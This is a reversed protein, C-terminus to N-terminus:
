WDNQVGAVLWQAQRHVLLAANDANRCFVEQGGALSEPTFRGALCRDGAGVTWGVRPNGAIQLRFRCRGGEVRINTISLGSPRGGYLNSGPSTSRTFSNRTGQPFLVGSLRDHGTWLAAGNDSFDAFEPDFYPAARLLWLGPVGLRENIHVILLGQQPLAGDPRWPERGTSARFELVFYEHPTNVPDPVVKIAEGTSTYPRLELDTAPFGPGNVVRHYAIWGARQKIVSCVESMRGPPSNDGHLDWYGTCGAPGYLDAFELFNHGFEHCLTGWFGRISNAPVGPLSLFALAYTIHTIDGILYRQGGVVREFGGFNASAHTGYRQVLVVSPIWRKGDRTLSGAARWVAEANADICAVILGGWDQANGGPAAVTPVLPVGTAARPTNMGPVLRGYSLTGWYGRMFESITPRAPSVGEDLWNRADQATTDRYDAPRNAATLNYFLAVSNWTATPSGPAPLHAILDRARASVDLRVAPGPHFDPLLHRKLPDAPDRLMGVDPAGRVQLNRLSEM